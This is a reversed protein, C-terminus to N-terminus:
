PGYWPPPPSFYQRVFSPFWRVPYLHWISATYSIWSSNYNFKCSYSSDVNTRFYPLVVPLARWSGIVLLLRLWLIIIAPLQFTYVTNVLVRLVSISPKHM